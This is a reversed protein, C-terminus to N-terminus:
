MECIFARVSTCQDDAMGSNGTIFGCDEIEEQTTSPENPAWSIFSADDTFSSVWTGETEIDNMDIWYTATQNLQDLETQDSIVALHGIISCVLHATVPQVTTNFVM